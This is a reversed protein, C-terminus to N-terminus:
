GAITRARRALVLGAVGALALAGSTTGTSTVLVGLNMCPRHDGPLLPSALSAGPVHASGASLSPVSAANRALEGPDAAASSWPSTSWLSTPACPLPAVADFGLLVSTRSPDCLQNTVLSVPSNHRDTFADMIHAHAVSTTPCVACLVVIQVVRSTSLM